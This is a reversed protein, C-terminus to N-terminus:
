KSNEHAYYKLFWFNFKELTKIAILYIFFQQSNTEMFLKHLKLNWKLCKKLHLLKNNRNILLISSFEDVIFKM